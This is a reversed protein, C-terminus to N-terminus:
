KNSSFYLGTAYVARRRRIQQNKLTLADSRIFFRSILMEFLVYTVKQWASIAKKRANDLIIFFISVAHQFVSSSKRARGNRKWDVCRNKEVGPRSLRRDFSLTLFLKIYLL